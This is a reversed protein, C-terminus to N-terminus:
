YYSIIKVKKNYGIFIGVSDVSIGKLDLMQNKERSKFFSKKNLPLLFGFFLFHFCFVARDEIKLPNPISGWLCFNLQPLFSILIFGRFFRFYFYEEDIYFKKNKDM